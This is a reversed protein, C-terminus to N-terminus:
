MIPNSSIIPSLPSDMEAIEKLGITLYDHFINAWFQSASKWGGSTGFHHM